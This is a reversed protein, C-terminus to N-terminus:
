GSCRASAGFFVMIQNVDYLVVFGCLSHCYLPPVSIDRLLHVAFQEIEAVGYMKTLTMNICTNM